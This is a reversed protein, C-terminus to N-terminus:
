ASEFVPSSHAAVTLEWAEAPVAATPTCTEFEHRAFNQQLDVLELCRNDHHNLVFRSGDEDDHLTMQMLPQTGYIWTPGSSNAIVGRGDQFHISWRESSEPLWCKEGTCTHTLWQQTGVTNLVVLGEHPVEPYQM